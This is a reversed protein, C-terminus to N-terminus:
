FLISTKSVLIKRSKFLEEERKLELVKKKQM